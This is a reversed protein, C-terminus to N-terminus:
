FFDMSYDESVLPSSENVQTKSNEQVPKEPTFLDNGRMSALIKSVSLDGAIVAELKDTDSCISMFSLIHGFSPDEREIKSVPLCQELSRFEGLVAIVRQNGFSLVDLKEILPQIQERLSEGAIGGKRSLLRDTFQKCTMSIEHLLQDAVEDTDHEYGEIAEMKYAHTSFQFTKEVKDREPVQNKILHAFELNDQIWQNINFEFESLFKRLELKFQQEIPALDTLVNEVFSDPIAYGGMFRVGRSLCIKEARKRLALFPSLASPPFIKKRGLDLLKQPPLAGDSGIKIDADRNAKKEGGWIRMKLHVLTIGHIFEM